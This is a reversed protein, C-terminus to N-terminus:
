RAEGDNAPYGYLGRLLLDRGINGVIAGPHLRPERRAPFPGTHWATEPRKGGSSWLAARCIPLRRPHQRWSLDGAREGRTRTHFIPRHGPRHSASGVLPRSRDNRLTATSPPCRLGLLSPQPFVDGNLNGRVRCHCRDQPDILAPEMWTTAHRLLRTRAESSLWLHERTTRRMALLGPFGHSQWRDCISSRDTIKAPPTKAVCVTLLQRTEEAKRGHISPRGCSNACRTGPM